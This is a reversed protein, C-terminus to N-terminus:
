RIAVNAVHQAWRQSHLTREAAVKVSSTGRHGAARFTTRETSGVPAGGRTPGGREAEVNRPSVSDDM